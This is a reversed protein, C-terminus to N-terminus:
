CKGEANLQPLVVTVVFENDKEVEVRLLGNAREVETKVNILGIGHSRRDKKTTAFWEGHRKLEHCFNNKIRIQLTKKQYSFGVDISPKETEKAATIANDLLNGLVIAMLRSDIELNQPLKATIKCSIGMSEAYNLKYNVFSDVDANGSSIWMKGVSYQRNDYEKELAALYSFAKQTDERKLYEEIILIHNKWDHRLGLIAKERERFLQAQYRYVQEREAYIAEREQKEYQKAAIDYIWIVLFNMLLIVLNTVILIGHHEQINAFLFLELYLSGCFFLFILIGQRVNIGRGKKIDPFKSVLVMLFLQFFRALISLERQNVITNQAFANLGSQKSLLM